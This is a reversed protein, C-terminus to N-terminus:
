TVCRLFLTSSFDQAIKRRHSGPKLCADCFSPLHSIKHSRGGTHGRSLARMASLLILFRTHDEEQTVGAPVDLSSLTWFLHSFFM